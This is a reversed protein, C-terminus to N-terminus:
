KKAEHDYAVEGDIVTKLVKTYPNLIDGDTIILDADKGVEISGVRDDVGLIKAPNITIAKVAEVKSLGHKTSYIAMLPLYQIPVVPHDTMLSFLIGREAVKAPTDFSANAVEPKFRDTMYPGLIVGILTGERYAEELLDIVIHADMVHDLTLKIEFERAIRIATAIDDARHAHVKLPIKGQIVPILAEWKPNYEPKKDEEAKLKKELYEKTRILAERMLAAEAMRTYPAQKRPAYVTKPNEGLAAKMAVPDKLVMKDIWKAKKSKLAVFTGGIVNASGPGTAVTTIGAKRADDWCMELPNVGDLGRMHPTIPESMENVDDGREGIIEEYIGIHTHADILGPYVHKGTADIVEMDSAPEIEHEIAVIKGNEILIDAKIGGYINEPAHM